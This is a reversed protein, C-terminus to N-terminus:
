IRGTHEHGYGEYGANCLTWHEGRVAIRGIKHLVCRGSAHSCRPAFACGNRSIENQGYGPIGKPPAGNLKPIEAMLARTYPHVPAKLLSERYGYEVIRGKYMVAVKDAMRAVIGMNHTVLLISTGFEARLRLLEDVLQVQNTADLASTPEDTLLVDPCLIMVLAIAIRQNMGGSLQASCSKLIRAPDPFGMRSLLAKAEALVENKKVKKHARMTECFLDGIKRIPDLSAGPEQFIMGIGAGRLRRLDDPPIDLLNRGHYLIEGEVKGLRGPMRLIANLLTTKGCGSEGIVCVIEKEHMHISVDHLVPEGGPYSVSLRHIDLLGIHEM